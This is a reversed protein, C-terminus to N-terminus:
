NWFYDDDEKHPREIDSQVFGQEVVIRLMAISPPEYSGYSVIKETQKKM